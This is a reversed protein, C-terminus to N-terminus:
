AVAPESSNAPTATKSSAAELVTTRHAPPTKHTDAAPLPHELLTCLLERTVLLGADLLQPSEAMIKAPPVAVTGDTASLEPGRIYASVRAAIMSRSVRQRAHMPLWLAADSASLIAPWAADPNGADIRVVTAGEAELGELDVDGTAAIVIDLSPYRQRQLQQVCRLLQETTAVDGAFSLAAPDIALLAAVSPVALGREALQAFSLREVDRVVPHLTQGGADITEVDLPKGRVLAEVHPLVRKADVSGLSLNWPCDWKGHPTGPVQQRVVVAPAEGLPHPGWRLDNEPGIIAVLPVGRSRAVHMVGTDNCVLCRCHDYFGLLGVLEGAEHANHMRGRLQPPVADIITRILRLEDDGAGTLAIHLDDHKVLLSTALRAFHAGPWRRSPRKSGPHMAVIADGRTLGVADLFAQGQAAVDGENLHMRPTRLEAPVPGTVLEALRLNNEAEHLAPDLMVVRDAYRQLPHGDYLGLRLPAGSFVAEPLHFYWVGGLVLDFGRRLISAIGQVRERRSRHFFSLEMVENVDPSAELLSKAGSGPAVAVSIHAHPYKRRLAALTPFFVVTDGLHGNRVVLISRVKAEDGRHGRALQALRRLGYYGLGFIRSAFYSLRQQGSLAASTYNNLLARVSADKGDLRPEIRVAKKGHRDPRPEPKGSAQRKQKALDAALRLRREFLDTRQQWSAAAAVKARRKAGRKPHALANEIAKAFSSADEALTIADRTSNLGPLPTSVTPLDAALYEYVKLPNYARTLATSLYPVIGVDLGGYVGALQRYDVFGPLAINPQKRLLNGAAEDKVRGFLVFAIDPLRKAVDVLLSADMRDDIQGVFGVTGRRTRPLTAFVEHPTAAALASPSFEDLEVGNEQLYVHDRQEAFREVLLPSVGLVVDTNRVLTQEERRQHGAFDQSLGAFRANDDFALYVTAQPRLQEILWRQAPWCCVVVPAWLGLRECIARHSRALWHGRLRRPLLRPITPTYVHLGDMERRLGVHSSAPRLAHLNERLTTERDLETPIPDVYLVRNGRRALRTLLQQKATWTVDWNQQGLCVINM